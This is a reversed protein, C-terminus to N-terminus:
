YIHKLLKEDFRILKSKLRLRRYTGAILDAFQIESNISSSVSIHPVEEKLSFLNTVTRLIILMTSKVYDRDIFIEKVDKSYLRSIVHYYCAGLFKFDWNKRMRYKKKIKQFDNSTVKMVAFPFNIRRVFWRLEEDTLDRAKIVRRSSLARHRKRVKNRLDNLISIRKELKVCAIVVPFQGLRGSTDLGLTSILSAVIRANKEKM